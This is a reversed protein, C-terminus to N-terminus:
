WRNRWLSIELWKISDNQLYNDVYAAIRLLDNIRTWEKRCVQENVLLIYVFEYLNICLSKLKRLIEYM